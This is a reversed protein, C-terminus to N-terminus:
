CKKKKKTKKQGLQTTIVMETVPNKDSSWAFRM